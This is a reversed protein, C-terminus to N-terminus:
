IADRIPKPLAARLLARMKRQGGATRLRREMWLLEREEVRQRLVRCVGQCRQAQWWQRRSEDLDPRRLQRARYWELYLFTAVVVDLWREVREFDRFRYQHMGLTSKLEKFFLEVQWRLTYMLVLDRATLTRNNSMLIKPEHLAQGARPAKATSFLLVVEGVSHVSRQQRQVWFTRPKSSRDTRRRSVRRQAAYADRGPHVQLPVFSAASLSTLLSRVKPRPKPGALVREANSPVIWSCQRDRCVRQICAADFAADGLVVLDAGPPLVLEAILEAALETQTKFGKGKQQCYEATYYSKRYPLRLGDPTLLLGFVFAHCRKPAYKKHQYRRGKQPRRRRNGASFTNPTRDGQRSALTQDVLFFYRGGGAQRALLSGRLGDLWPHRHWRQRGLFRGIAAPHRPDARVAQAAQSCTMAGVHFLFAGLLRVIMAQATAKLRAPRLFTQVGPLSHSLIM